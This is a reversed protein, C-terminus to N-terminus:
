FSAADHMELDKRPRIENCPPQPLQVTQIKQM